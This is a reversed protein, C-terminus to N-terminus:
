QAAPGGPVVAGIAKIVGVEVTIRASSGNPISASVITVHDKGSSKAIEEAFKKTQEKTEAPTDESMHESAFKAMPDLAISLQAPPVAKEGEKASDDIVKKITAVPDKGVAVYVTTDNIGVALQDTKGFIKAAEEDKVPVTAVHFNIGEYKEVDLKVKSSIEPNEKGLDALLKKITSELKLGDALAAGAVMDPSKSGLDVKFGFDLKKMSASKRLVEYTENIFTKAAAQQDKSLDDRDEISKTAAAKFYALSTKYQKSEDPTVNVVGAFDIASSPSILGAFRTKLDKIQELKKAISSGPIARVEFDVFVANTAPDLGIGWTLDDVEKSMTKLQEFTQETSAARAAAQEENDNNQQMRMAQEFAFRMIPLYKERMAEPINKISVRVALLYKKALTSIMPLPDDIATKLGDRSDAARAWKGKQAVYFTKAPGAPIEYVGDSDPAYPGDQGAPLAKLLSKLDDVPVFAQIPWDTENEGAFVMVGWPRSKDLGKVGRGQTGLAIGGQLMQLWEPRGAVDSVTKVNSMFSSYGGFVVTLVPKAEEAPKTDDAAVRQATWLNGAFLLLVVSLSWVLPKKM